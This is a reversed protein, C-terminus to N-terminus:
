NMFMQYLSLASFTFLTFFCLEKLSENLSPTDVMNTTNQHTNTGPAQGKPAVESSAPTSGGQQEGAVLQVMMDRSSNIFENIPSRMWYLTALSGVPLLINWKNRFLFDVPGISRLAVFFHMTQQSIRTLFSSPQKEGKNKDKEKSNSNSIHSTDLGGKQSSAQSRNLQDGVDNAQSGLQSLKNESQNGVEEM